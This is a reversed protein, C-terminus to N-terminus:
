TVLGGDRTVVVVVVVVVVLKVNLQKGRVLGEYLSMHQETFKEDRM